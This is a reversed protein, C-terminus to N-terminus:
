ADDGEEIAMGLLSFDVRTATLLARRQAALEECRLQGRQLLSVAAEAGQLGAALVADLIAVAQALGARDDLLQSAGEVRRGDAATLRVHARAVPIEGLFYNDALASDRLQLLGLGAQPLTLDEIAYQRALQSAAWKVEASPLACLLRAWDSRPHPNM